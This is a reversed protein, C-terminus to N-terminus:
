IKKKNKMSISLLEITNSLNRLIVLLEKWILWTTTVLLMKKAFVSQDKIVVKQRNISEWYDLVHVWIAIRRSITVTM